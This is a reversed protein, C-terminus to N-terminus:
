RLSRTSSRKMLPLGMGVRVNNIMNEVGEPGRDEWKRRNEQAYNLYEDSSVGFVGCERLKKALPIIYFDFFSIESNYWNIAPDQEVHCSGNLYAKYREKFLRTNWKLFVQWHQMTHAVDSAQILHEIVITAKRDVDKKHDRQLRGSESFATEWRANRLRKLDRDLIDTAMVSNVVLQRFRTKEEETRFIARRLNYFQKDGLLEWALDVSKQEAVSQGKYFVALEPQDLMLQTNPVGPHDVDHILASFVCAFQTLPDSTIGYTFNHMRMSQHQDMKDSDVTCDDDLDPTIIRSLLKVVSLTVHSAHEFSHFPNDRYMSSITSIYHELEPRVAPDLVDSADNEDNPLSQYTNHDPLHIIEKVEELVTLQKNSDSHPSMVETGVEDVEQSRRVGIKILLNLLTDVNWRILRKTKEDIIEGHGANEPDIEDTKGNEDEDASFDDNIEREFDAMPKLENTSFNLDNSSGTVISEGTPVNLWYTKMEGKGKAVIVDERPSIWNGKGSSILFDATAQSIQIRNAVGTSEMRSATNMTDGFLQFRAREGRLIGATVPGSHLGFRMTLDGTDPGLSEELKKTLQLLKYMCDNAFRAMAIAHDNRPDPVGAVAVYSDGVTEVKFVRHKKALKDFARYVTELLIFVATPERSSSWATFGVMDSFMITCEPFLDAIPKSSVLEGDDDNSRADSLFSQLLAKGPLGYQTSSGRKKKNIDARNTEDAFLRARVHSPFMSSVIANSKVAMDIIKNNKRVVFRDYMLFTGGMFVFATAVLTAFIAPVYSEYEENLASSPYIKFHYECGHDHDGPEHHIYIEKAYEDYKNEHYDGQGVFTAKEGNIEYSYVEGCSSHLVCFVTDVGSPLVNQLYKDWPIVSIVLAVITSSTNHLQEFVPYALATHPRDNAKGSKPDKGETSTHMGDYKEESLSYGILNNEHAPGKAYTKNRNVSEYLVQYAKISLANLNVISTDFPPPSMQWFPATPYTANGTEPVLVTKGKYRGLSYISSPIPNLDTRSEGM